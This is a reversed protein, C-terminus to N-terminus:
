LCMAGSHRASRTSPSCRVQSSDRASRAFIESRDATGNSSPKSVSQFGSDHCYLRSAPSQLRNHRHELIRSFRLIVLFLLLGGLISAANFAIAASNADLLSYGCSEPSCLASVADEWFFYGLAVAAAFLVSIVAIFIVRELRAAYRQIASSLLYLWFLVLAIVVSGLAMMWAPADATWNPSNALVSFYQRVLSSVNIPSLSLALLAVLVLLIFTNRRGQQRHVPLMEAEIAERIKPDLTTTSQASQLKAEIIKFETFDKSISDALGSLQRELVMRDVQQHVQQIEIELKAKALELGQLEEEAKEKSREAGEADLQTEVIQEIRDQVERRRKRRRYGAVLPFLAVVGSVVGIIVSADVVIGWLSVTSQAPHPTHVTVPIGRIAALIM